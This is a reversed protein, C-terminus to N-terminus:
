GEENQFTSRFQIKLAIRFGDETEVVKGKQLTIADVNLVSFNHIVQESELKEILEFISELDRTFLTLEASNEKNLSFGEIVINERELILDLLFDYQKYYEPASVYLNRIENLKKLGYIGKSLTQPDQLTGSLRSISTKAMQELRQQSVVLLLFIAGYVVLMLPILILIVLRTKAVTNRYLQVKTAHKILNIRFM